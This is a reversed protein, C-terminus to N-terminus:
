FESLIDWEGREAIPRREEVVIWLEDLDAESTPTRPMVLPTCPVTAVDNTIEPLAEDESDYLLGMARLEEDSVDGAEVAKEKTPWMYPCNERDIGEQWCEYEERWLDDEEFNYIKDLNVMRAEDLDMEEDLFFRRGKTNRSKTRRPASPKYKAMKERKAANVTISHTDYGRMVEARSLDDRSTIAQKSFPNTTSTTYCEWPLPPEPQTACIHCYRREWFTHLLPQHKSIQTLTYHPHSM